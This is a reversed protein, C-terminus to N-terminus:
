LKHECASPILESLVPNPNFLDATSSERRGKFEM